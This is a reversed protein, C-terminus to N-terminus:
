NYTDFYFVTGNIYSSAYTTDFTNQNIHYNDSSVLYQKHKLMTYKDKIDEM